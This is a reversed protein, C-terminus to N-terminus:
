KEQSTRDTKGETKPGIRLSQAIYKEGEQHGYAAAEEGVKADEFTAKEGTGLTIRTDALIHYVRTKENKTSLTVTKASRDIASIKGAYPTGRPKRTAASDDAAGLEICPFAALSVFLGVGILKSVINKM